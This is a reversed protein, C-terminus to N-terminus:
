IKNKLFEQKISKLIESNELIRVLFGDIVTAGNIICPESKESAVIDAFEKTHLAINKNTIAVSPHFAPCRYSVNGMDSSGEPYEMTEYEMGYDKMVNMIIQTGSKLYNMDSFSNGFIEIKSKTQTALSCGEIINKFWPIIEEKLYKLSDSRFTYKAKAKNPIINTASGGEQIFGEIITNRKTCKRMLDFAHISLMLGDLASRGCWPAVATHAPVGTFEIEYTEFALMKWNPINKIGLHVMIACDYKDFVGKDAMTVKMGIDEEDALVSIATSASHGCAHGVEPLADYETLIAININSNEKKIVEGLFSTDIDSFKEKTTIQNKNLIEMIKKCSNYEKGSIEPNKALYYNLAFAEEKYKEISNILKKELIM